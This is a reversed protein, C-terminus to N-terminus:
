PRQEALAANLSEINDFDEYEGSAIERISQRLRAEAQATLSYDQSGNQYDFSLPIKGTRSVQNLFLKFAQAPTLGYSELIPFAKDRLEEDIRINYSISPM